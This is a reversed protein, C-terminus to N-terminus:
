IIYSLSKTIIYDLMRDSSLLLKGTKLKFDLGILFEYLNFLQYDKIKGCNYKIANFQKSSIGLDNYTLKPNTQIKIIKLINDSLLTVFGISDIDISQINELVNKVDSLKKTTVAKILSFINLNTLDSYGDERNIEDFIDSQIKKDFINIKSLENDIRFINGNTIDYLWKLRQNDLGKCVENMYDLVQWDQLKAFDTIVESMELYSLLENDIQKCVVICNNLDEVKRNVYLKSTLKDTRLVNLTSSEDEFLSIMNVNSLDDVFEIEKDLIQSIAKVYTLALYDNEQYRFIKFSSDVEKSLILTKLQELEM